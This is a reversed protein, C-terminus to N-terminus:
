GFTFTYAQLGAGDVEIQLTHEGYDSGQILNYLKDGQITITNILKGDQFIKIPIGNTANAVM